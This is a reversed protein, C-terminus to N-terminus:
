EEITEEKRIEAEREQEVLEFGLRKMKALYKITAKIGRKYNRLQRKNYAFDVTFSPNDDCYRQVSEKIEYEIEFTQKHKGAIKM